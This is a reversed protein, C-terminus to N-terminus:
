QYLHKQFGIFSDLVIDMGGLYEIGARPSGFQVTLYDSLKSRDLDEVGTKVYQNLIYELFVALKEDFEASVKISGAEAREQRTIPPQSYAIYALVDFLDSKEAFIAERIQCLM